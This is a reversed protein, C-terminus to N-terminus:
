TATGLILSAASSFPVSWQGGAARSAAADITSDFTHAGIADRLAAFDEWTMAEGFPEGDPGAVSRCMAAVARLNVEDPNDRGNMAQRIEDREAATLSEFWFTLCSAAMEARLEEVREAAARLASKSAMRKGAALPDAAAMELAEEADEIQERLGQKLPVTVTASPRSAEALLSRLDPVELAAPSDSM